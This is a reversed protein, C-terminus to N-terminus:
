ARVREIKSSLAAGNTGGAPLHITFRSGVGERSEVDIRGGMGTILTRAEFAGIGFGGDKTSAFPQFLRTRIFDASMGAGSDIVDIVVDGGQQEYCIRVPEVPRSADIANQVIHALAQELRAPDAVVAIGAKGFLQVPHVRQKAEAVAALIPQLPTARLPEADAKNGRNLRALLDNMKKVSSQLTAIMDARFEPNDAHREANRAVLSLQSVLNKIDHMIFAFRRNFEDFRHANALAEQSQAEALYSAAQIGATRFLDFDEWDLPRRLLPHELIVLGVLHDSHLLPVGAWAAESNALWEPIPVAGGTRTPIGNRVMEFDVVHSTSEIFRAFDTDVPGSHGVEHHWNWRAGPTLRYQSDALLLLGSPSGAIDALAKVIRDGLPAADDGATGVTRTFRLWEERYDYRHEFFHKALVVRAWARAKGSPLFILAALTMAFVLAIQGIRVWEGGILELAQTASMMLILYAFIAIVSLSQFTAARSLQMKWQANRRSAIAFLPTLMAVIAGRMAFLDDVPDKTLYAVTYLHLDYAWMGALAIMPLRIGWRSDPAAQGYLNHVLVLAGAAITLGLIHATTLLAEYAGSNSEFRPLVGAVVIQLGIVAAVTTYVLKVSRQRNTEEAGRVIGYMFALFSFNRASEALGSMLHHPGLIAVFISWVSMVAFAAVLPRNRQDGNWHRLQWIALAGYLIAALAHSWLGILGLM